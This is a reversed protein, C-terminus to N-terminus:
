PTLRAIEIEIARVKDRWYDGAKADRRDYAADRKQKAESLQRQLEDM